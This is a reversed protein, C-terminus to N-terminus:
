NNARSEQIKKRTYSRSYMNGFVPIDSATPGTKVISLVFGRGYDRDRTKIDSIKKYKNAEVFADSLKKTEQNYVKQVDKLSSLSMDSLVKANVFETNAENMKKKNQFIPWKNAERGYKMLAQKERREGYKYMKGSIQLQKGVAATHRKATRYDKIAYHKKGEPTLTGDANQYRRIGWKQGLIGHHQISTDYFSNYQWM